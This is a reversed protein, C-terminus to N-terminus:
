RLVVTQVAPRNIAPYLPMSFVGGSVTTSITQTSADDFTYTANYTGNALTVSLASAGISVTSAGTVILPLPIIVGSVIQAQWVILTLGTGTYSPIRGSSTNNNIFVANIGVETGSATATWRMICRYWGGGCSVISAIANGGTATVTGNSLNFNAYATGNISTPAILQVSTATGAKAFMSTVYNTGNVYSIHAAGDYAYHNAATASETLTDATTTGDPAATTNATATLANLTWATADQSNLHFNTTAGYSQYGDKTVALVGSGLSTITGDNNVYSRAGSGSYTYGPISSISGYSTAGVSGTGSLFNLSLAPPTSGGGQAAAIALIEAFRM